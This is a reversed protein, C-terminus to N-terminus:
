ISRKAQVGGFTKLRFYGQGELSPRPVSVVTVRWRLDLLSFFSSGGRHADM